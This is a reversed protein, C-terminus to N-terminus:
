SNTIFFNIQLVIKNIIGIIIIGSIIKIYKPKGGGTNDVLIDNLALARLM